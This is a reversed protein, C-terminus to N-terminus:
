RHGDTRSESIHGLDDKRHRSQRAEVICPSDQARGLASRYPRPDSIKRRFYLGEFLRHSSDVTLFGCDQDAFSHETPSPYRNLILGRFPEEQKSAYRVSAQNLYLPNRRVSRPSIGVFNSLRRSSECVCHGHDSRCRYGANCMVVAKLSWKRLKVAFGIFAYLVLHWVLDLLLPLPLVILLAFPHLPGIMDWM